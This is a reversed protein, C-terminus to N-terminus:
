QKGGLRGVDRGADASADQCFTCVTESVGLKGLLKLVDDKKAEKVRNVMPALAPKFTGWKKGTKM